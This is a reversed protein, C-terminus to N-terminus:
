EKHELTGVQGLGEFAKSAEEWATDGEHLQSWLYAWTLRQVAILREVSEDETEATDFGSVGGLGHKGGKLSLLSKPGPALAYPDAHWDAGRETLAATVDEDGYVVLAPAKMQGFDPGYFPIIAQGTATLDAGGAGTSALVVGAKIRDERLSVTENTRPDTNTAGLLMSATTGGYSHGALVIRSRDLLRGGNGKGLGPVADEIEDLRDLIRGFDRARTQWWAFDPADAAPRTLNLFRSDPLTPQLVAFGHSAYFEALPTSGDLSSLWNSPGAGHALLLIPLPNNSTSATAPPFAVRLQLDVPRDPAPLVVPSYSIIPTPDPVPINVAAGILAHYPFQM